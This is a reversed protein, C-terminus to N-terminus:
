RGKDISKKREREVKGGQRNRFDTINKKKCEKRKEFWTKLGGVGEICDL